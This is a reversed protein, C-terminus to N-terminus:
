TQNGTIVIQCQGLLENLWQLMLSGRENKQGTTKAKARIIVFSLSLIITKIKTMTVTIM